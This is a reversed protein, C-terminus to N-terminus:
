ARYIGLPRSWRSLLEQNLREIDALAESKFAEYNIRSGNILTGDYKGVNSGWQFKAKALAYEKIWQHDYIADYEKPSYSLTCEIVMNNGYLSIDQFFTLIKTNDNYDWAPMIDFYKELVSIEALVAAVSTIDTKGSPMLAGAFFDSPTIILGGPLQYSFSNSRFKVDTLATVRSDLQYQFVGQIVPIQYYSLETGGMAFDSFKQISEGICLEIQPDTIEVDHVPEGLRTRIYSILDEKTKIM